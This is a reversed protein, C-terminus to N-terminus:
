KFKYNKIIQNLQSVQDFSITSHDILISSKHFCKTKIIKKVIENIARDDKVCTIIFDFKISEEFNYSYASNKNLWKKQINKTRNYVYLDYKNSKTLFSAMHSGMTGLGIFLIKYKQM